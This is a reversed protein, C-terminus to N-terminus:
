GSARTVQLEPRDYCQVRSQIYDEVNEESSPLANDITEETVADETGTLPRSIRNPNPTYREVICPYIISTDRRVTVTDGLPRSRLEMVIGLDLGDTQNPTITMRWQEPELVLDSPATPQPPNALRDNSQPAQVEEFLDNLLRKKAADLKSQFRDNVAESYQEADQIWSRVQPLSRLQLTQNLTDEAIEFVPPRDGLPIVFASEELPGLLLVPYDTVWQQVLVQFQFWCSVTASALFLITFQQRVKTNPTTITGKSTVVKPLLTYGASILPWGVIAATRVDGTGMIFFYTSTLVGVVWAAPYIKIDFFPVVITSKVLLWAMSICLCVWGVTFLLWRALSMQFFLASSEPVNGNGVVNALLWPGDSTPLAVVWSFLCLFLFTRWSLEQDPNLIPWLTKWLYNLSAIVYQM